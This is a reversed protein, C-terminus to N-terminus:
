QKIASGSVFVSGSDGSPLSSTGFILSAGNSGAVMSFSWAGNSSGQLFSSLCATSGSTETANFNATGSANSNLVYSGTFTVSCSTAPGVVVTMTGNTINGNGDASFSGTGTGQSGHALMLSYTGSVSANSYGTQASVPNPSIVSGGGGSCGSLCIALALPLTSVLYKM